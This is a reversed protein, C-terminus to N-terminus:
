ACWTSCTGARPATGGSTPTPTTCTGFCRTVPSSTTSASATTASRAPVRHASRHGSRTSSATSPCRRRASPTRRSDPHRPLRGSPAPLRGVPPCHLVLPSGIPNLETDTRIAAFQAPRDWAPSTGFTEYDFWCFSSPPTASVLRRRERPPPPSSTAASARSCTRSRRTRGTVPQRRDRPPDAHARHRPDAGRRRPHPLREGRGQRVADAGRHSARRDAGRLDAPLRPAIGELDFRWAFGGAEERRLSKLLFARVGADPVGARLQRDADRRDGLAALDLGQMAEIIPRHHPPYHRPAIDVVILSALEPADERGALAMAVKGGLSHGLLHCRGIGERALWAHVAAAMDDIGLRPLTPSRGHAPLDLRCVELHRALHLSVTHFNDLDGFLGHLVVLAPGNGGRRANLPGHTVSAPRDLPDGM